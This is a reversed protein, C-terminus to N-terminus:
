AISGIFYFLSNTCYVPCPKIVPMTRIGQFDGENKSEDFLAAGKSSFFKGRVM